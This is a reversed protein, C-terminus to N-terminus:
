TSFKKTVDELSLLELLGNKFIVHFDLKLGTTTITKEGDIYTRLVFMLSPKLFRLCNKKSLSFCMAVKM